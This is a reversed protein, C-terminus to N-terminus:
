KKNKGNNGILLNLMGKTTNKVAGVSSDLLKSVDETTTSVVNKPKPFKSEYGTGVLATYCPSGDNELLMQTGLYVPGATTVGVITKIANAGDVGIKPESVTGTLKVLSSLAKAINTDTIKGAFPKVSINLKDNKLNIDGDAVVTFKDANIAIGNPFIMKKNRFDARVVACSMDLNDDGKTVKLTNFLQSIINGKIAGINGLHLSSKNIILVSNGNMNEVLSSYTNGASEINIYVDAGGGNIVYFSPTEIDFAKFLDILNLNEISTNVKLTKNTANLIATNKVVGQAIKGQLVRFEAVGNNIGIKAVMDNAVLINNNLIQGIKVDADMNLMNLVDYPVAENSVMETAFAEKVFLTKLANKQTKRFLALDIKSVDFSAKIIPKTTSLDCVMEGVIVNKAINLEKLKVDINQLDGKIEASLTENYGSNKGIFNFVKIEGDFSLSDVIDYLKVKADLNIGDIALKADIPYGSNNELLNLAGVVGKGKYQADNIDFNFDINKDNNELLEVNNIKYTQAKGDKDIYNITVNNLVVEKIVILSLLELSSGDKAEATKILQFIKSSTQKQKVDVKSLDFTWNNQGKKNEELNIEADKIKFADIVVSKNMLPILAVSVDISKATLMNTKNAWEANSFVVDSVEVTPVFSLKFKIDGVSLDRGTSEKVKTVITAKYQNFDIKSLLVYGAITIILFLSVISIVAIKLVRMM